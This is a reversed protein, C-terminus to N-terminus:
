QENKDHLTSFYKDLYVKHAVAIIVNRLLRREETEKEGVVDITERIEFVYSLINELESCFYNYATKTEYSEKQIEILLKIDDMSLVMKAISIFILYAIQDRDYQKKVPNSLLGQKVYNSIMSGTVAGGQLVVSFESVYKSAQELYLGVNPIENYKPLAFAGISNILEEKSIQKM